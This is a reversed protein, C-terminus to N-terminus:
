LISVWFRPSTFRSPPPLSPEGLSGLFPAPSLHPFPPPPTAGRTAWGCRWRGRSGLTLGTASAVPPAPAMPAPLGWLSAATLRVVNWRSRRRQAPSPLSPWRWCWQSSACDPWPACPVPPSPASPSSWLQGSVRFFRWWLQQGPIQIKVIDADAARRVVGGAM